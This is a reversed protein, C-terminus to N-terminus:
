GNARTAISGAKPVHRGVRVTTRAGKTRAMGSIALRLTYTGSEITEPLVFEVNRDVTDGPKFTHLPSTRTVLVRGAGDILSLDWSVTVEEPRRHAIRVRVDLASGPAYIQKDLEIAAQCGAHYLVVMGNNYDAIAVDSAGDGNIDGVALGHPNYHTAYPLPYLEYPLLAGNADQLFVGMAVFGGHAVLVDNRGDHNVDAVEVPEPIDYSRYGRAPDLTGGPNQSFVGIGSSPQNGGFSLVVDQLADGNADGIGVGASLETDPLHYYVAPDFGGESRQLLVGLNDGFGQGSMVVIDDRGDDNIDGVELDDYGEHLAQLTHPRALTGQANQLFVDVDDSQTGWDISAVDMLGDANFDGVRLKYVNTFSNHNSRYTVMPDLDGSDNQLFVGVANDASVVVDDKGDGNLDGIDISAGNGAAYKVPPELHGKADQLFVFIHYDNPPDFYYSTTMVVDQRGDSNMDGMAVAEPWSGVPFEVYPEFLGSNMLRRSDVLPPGAPTLTREGTPARRVTMWDHGIGKQYERYRGLTAEMSSPISQRANNTDANALIGASSGRTMNAMGAVLAVVVSTVMTGRTRHM